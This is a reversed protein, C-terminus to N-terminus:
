NKILIKNKGKMFEGIFFDKNPDIIIEKGNMYYLKINLIDDGHKEFVRMTMLNPDDEYKFYETENYKPNNEYIFKIKIDKMKNDYNDSHDKGNNESNNDECDNTIFEKLQKDELSDSDENSNKKGFSKKQADLKIFNLDESDSSHNEEKEEIEKKEYNNEIEHNFQENKKEENNNLNNKEEEIKKYKKIYEDIKKKEEPKLSKFEINELINIKSDLIISKIKAKELDLNKLTLKSIYDFNNISSLSLDNKFKYLSSELDQTQSLFIDNKYNNVEKKLETFKAINPYKYNGIQRVDLSKFLKKKKAMLENILIENNDENESIYMSANNDKNQFKEQFITKKLKIPVYPCKM